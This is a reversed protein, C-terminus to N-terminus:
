ILQLFSHHTKSHGIYHTFQIFHDRLNHPDVGLVGIWTKIHQGCHLFLHSALEDLGCGAVCRIAAAQIICRWLLNNKTPLRDRLLRWALISVKMPVQKHRIIDGTVDVLPSVQTTIIQYAGRM